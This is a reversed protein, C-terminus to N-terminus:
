LPNLEKNWRTNIICQEKNKYREVFIKWYDAAQEKSILQYPLWVRLDFGIEYLQQAFGKRSDDEWTTTDNVKSGGRGFDFYNILVDVDKWVEIYDISRSEHNGIKIRWVLDGNQGSRNFIENHKSWDTALHTTQKRVNLGTKNGENFYNDFFDDNNTTHQIWLYRIAWPGKGDPEILPIMEKNDQQGYNRYPTVIM